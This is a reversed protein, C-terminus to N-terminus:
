RPSPKKTPASRTWQAERTWRYGCHQCEFHDEYTEEIIRVAKADQHLGSTHTRWEEDSPLGAAGELHTKADIVKSEVLRGAGKKGCKPCTTTQKNLWVLWLYSAGIGVVLITGLFGCVVLSPFLVESWGM